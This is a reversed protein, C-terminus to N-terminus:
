KKIETISNAYFDDVNLADWVLGSTGALLDDIDFGKVANNEFKYTLVIGCLGNFGDGNTAICEVEFTRFRKAKSKEQKKM